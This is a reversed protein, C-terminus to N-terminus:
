DPLIVLYSNALGFGLWLRASDLGLRAPSLWALDLWTSHLCLKSAIYARVNTYFLLATKPRNM